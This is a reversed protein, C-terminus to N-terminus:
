RKKFVFCLKTHEGAELLKLPIGHKESVKQKATEENGKVFNKVVKFTNSTETSM